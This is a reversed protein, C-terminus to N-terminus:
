TSANEKEMLARFIHETLGLGGSAVFARAQETVLMSAFQDEGVGGGFSELPKGFGAARLMEALFTTELEAAAARLKAPRDVVDARRVDTQASNHTPVHIPGTDIM